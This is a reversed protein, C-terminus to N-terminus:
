QALDDIILQTTTRYHEDRTKNLYIEGYKDHQFFFYDHKVPNLAAEIAKIGPNCIPGAPLGACRYTNYLADYMEAAGPDMETAINNLVYDRTANCELMPYVSPHNLRNHLVGSVDGMQAANAAEKQIVSALIVIQDVTYGLERARTSYEEKWKAQFNDFLKCLASNANEDIFFEYTDPFLYGEYKYYRGETKLDKLFPYDFPTALMSRRLLNVNSVRNEGIKNLVQRVTFGEPFLLSATEGTSPKALFSGLMEELGMATDLEYEGAIYDPPAPEEEKNKTQIYWTFRMYLKCLFRQSLLKKDALLDILEETSLGERISLNVVSTTEPNKGLAFIDRLTAIGMFSLVATALLVAALLAIIGGEGGSRKGKGKPKAAAGKATSAGANRSQPAASEPPLASPRISRTPNAFYVEGKSQPLDADLASRAAESDDLNFDLWFPKTNDPKKPSNQNDSM